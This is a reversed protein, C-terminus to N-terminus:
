SLKIRGRGCSMSTPGSSSLLMARQLYVFGVGTCFCAMGIASAPRSRMAQAWVPDPLVAAKEKGMMRPMMRRLRETPQRPRM